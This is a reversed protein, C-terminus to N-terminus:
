TPARMRKSRSILQNAVTGVSGIKGHLMALHLTISAPEKVMNNALPLVQTDVVIGQRLHVLVGVQAMLMTPEVSTLM